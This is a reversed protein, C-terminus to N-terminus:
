EDDDGHDADSDPEDYPPERYEASWMAAVFDAPDPNHGTEIDLRLGPLRLRLRIM